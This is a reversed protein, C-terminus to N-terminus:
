AWSAASNQNARIFFLRAISAVARFGTFVIGTSKAALRSAMRLAHEFDMTSLSFRFRRRLPLGLLSTLSAHIGSIPESLEFCSLTEFTNLDHSLCLIKRFWRPLGLDACSHTIRVTGGDLVL